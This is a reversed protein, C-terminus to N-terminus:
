ISWRDYSGCVAGTYAGSEECSCRRRYPQQQRCEVDLTNDITVVLTIRRRRSHFPTQDVRTIWVQVPFSSCVTNNKFSSWRSGVAAAHVQPLEYGSVENQYGFIVPSRCNSSSLLSLNTDLKHGWTEEDKTPLKLGYTFVRSLKEREEERTYVQLQINVVSMCLVLSKKSLSFIPTETPHKQCWFGFKIQECAGRVGYFACNLGVVNHLWTILIKM